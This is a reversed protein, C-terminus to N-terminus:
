AFYAMFYLLACLPVIVLDTKLVLICEEKSKRHSGTEDAVYAKLALEKPDGANPSLITELQVHKVNMESDQKNLTTVKSM